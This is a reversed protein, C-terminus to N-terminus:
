VSASPLLDFPALWDVTIETFVAHVFTTVVPM